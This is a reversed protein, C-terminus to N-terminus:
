NVGLTQTALEPYQLVTAAPSVRVWTDPSIHRVQLWLVVLQARTMEHLRM